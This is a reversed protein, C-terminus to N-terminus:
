DDMAAARNMMVIFREENKLNEFKVDNLKKLLKQKIGDGWGGKSKFHPLITTDYDVMKELRELAKKTDGMEIYTHAILSHVDGRERFHLPPMIAEDNGIVSILDFIMEFQKLADDYKQMHRYAEGLQAISCFMAQYHYFIDRKCHEAEDAYNKDDHSIYAQMVNFTMDCREPFKEAHKRAEDINGYASHLIVMIMRARLVDGVAKSYTIVLNAMRICEPYIGEKHRKDYGSHFCLANGSELCNFLLWINNPYKKLGAQLEAYRGKL